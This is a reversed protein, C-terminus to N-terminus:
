GSRAIDDRVPTWARLALYCGTLFAAALTALALRPVSDRVADLGMGVLRGPDLDDILGLPDDVLAAALFVLGGLGLYAAAVLLLARGNRM